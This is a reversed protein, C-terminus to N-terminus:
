LARWYLIRGSGTDVIADIQKTYGGVMAFASVKYLTSSYTLYGATVDDIPVIRTVDAKQTFPKNERATVIMEAGSIGMATLVELPATNINILHPPSSVTTVDKEIKGVDEDSMVQHLQTPLYFNMQEDSITDLVNQDISKTTFLQVLWKYFPHYADGQKRISSINIKGQEDEWKVRLETDGGSIIPVIGWEGQHIFTKLDALKNNFRIFAFIGSRALFYARQSDRFNVASNLSIRTAYSFEFVLAIMLATVLLVILLAVGRKNGIM